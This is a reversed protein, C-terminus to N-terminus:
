LLGQRYDRTKQALKDVLPLQDRLDEVRRAWDRQNTHGIGVYAGVAKRAHGLEVVLLYYCLASELQRLTMFQKKAARPMTTPCHRAVAQRVYGYDESIRRAGDAV